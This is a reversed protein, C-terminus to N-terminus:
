IEMDFLSLQGELVGKEKKAPTPKAVEIVKKNPSKKSTREEADEDESEEDTDEDSKKTKSTTVKAKTPKWDELEEEWFYHVAWGFVTQDDICVNRNGNAEKRAQDTVYSLCDNMNKKENMLKEIFEGETTARTILYDAIIRSAGTEDKFKEIVREM